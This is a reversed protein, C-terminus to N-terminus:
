HSKTPYVYSYASNSVKEKTVALKKAIQQIINCWPKKELDSIAFLFQCISKITIKMDNVLTSCTEFVHKETIKTAGCVLRLPILYFRLGLKESRWAVYDLLYFSLRSIDSTFKIFGINNQM